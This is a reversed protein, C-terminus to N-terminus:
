GADLFAGVARAVEAPREQQVWHSVGPLRLVRLDPVFRGLGDLLGVGLAVDEEGWIVLTPAAVRMKTGAFLGRPGVQAAARYYNIGAALAGPRALAEQYIASDQEDLLLRGDAGRFAGRVFAPLNRLIILEPLRPIQFFGTYWSRALQRPNRRLEEAFRAPHPANLIVLKEVRWPRAIAVAWAIVGGWDHGVLHARRFGLAEILGVVDQVLVDPEYGWDPKETENYGRLDPAVVTYQESLPGILHRWSWWLEPFGHLLLVLREGSGAQVYHFRVGNVVVYRHEFDGPRM